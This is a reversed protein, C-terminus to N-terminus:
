LMEKKRSLALNVVVHVELEIKELVKDGVDIILWEDDVDDDDNVLTNKYEMTDGEVNNLTFLALVWNFLRNDVYVPSKDFHKALQELWPSQTNVEIPLYMHWHLWYLLPDAQWVSILGHELPGHKFLPMQEFVFLSVDNWHSQEM